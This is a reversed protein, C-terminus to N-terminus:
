AVREAVLAVFKNVWVGETDRVITFGQSLEARLWDVAVSHPHHTEIPTDVYEFWRIRTAAHRRAVAMVAAPDIVHQLVNYGWVEDTSEGTYDEAPMRVCGVPALPDVVVRRTLRLAPDLVMASPGGGLDTVSLGSVSDATIGLLGRLERHGEALSQPTAVRDWWVREVKQAEQWREVTVASV